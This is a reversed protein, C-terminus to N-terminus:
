RIHLDQYVSCSMHNRSKARNLGWVTEMPVNVGGVSGCTAVYTLQGSM